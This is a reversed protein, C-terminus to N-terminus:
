SVKKWFVTGGGRNGAYNRADCIGLDDHIIIDRYDNLTAAVYSLLFDSEKTAVQYLGPSVPLEETFDKGIYYNRAMGETTEFRPAPFYKQLMNLDSIARDLRAPVTDKRGFNMDMQILEILYKASCIYEEPELTNNTESM